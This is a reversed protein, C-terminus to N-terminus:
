CSWNEDVVESIENVSGLIHKAGHQQFLQYLQGGDDSPPIVGIPIAGASRAAKIDDVTDGLYAARRVNLKKMALNLGFPDPKLKEDPVDEMAVVIDFYNKMSFKTLVYEAEARPRGTVIGLKYDAKLKDLVDKHLLWKENTILGNFNNGRYLRQFQEIIETRAAQEGHMRIIAETCDWDNNYGGRDKFEQIEALSVEEDLFYEATNKIAIRYSNSVDVLVGDMDFFLAEPPLIETLAELFMRHQQRTGVSIRLFGDLLPYEDMDRVLIDREKLRTYVLERWKGFRALIFNTDTKITQIGLKDLREHLFTKEQRTTLLVHDVFEQDDLATCGAIVALSNVCYPLRVKNLNIINEAKSIINGLRLGALGFIKSFTKLIFLHPFDNILDIATEGTYHSYTESRM